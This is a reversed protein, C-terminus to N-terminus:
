TCLWCCLRIYTSFRIALWFWQSGRKCTICELEHLLTTVGVLESNRFDTAKEV